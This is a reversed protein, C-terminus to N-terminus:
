VLEGSQQYVLHPHELLDLAQLFVDRGRGAAARGALADARDAAARRASHRAQSAAQGQDVGPGGGLRPLLEGKQIRNMPQAIAVVLRPSRRTLAAVWVAEPEGGVRLPIEPTPPVPYQPLPWHPPETM